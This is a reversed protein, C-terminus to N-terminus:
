DLLCDYNGFLGFYYFFMAIDVLSLNTLM